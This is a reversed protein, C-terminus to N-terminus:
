FPRGLIASPAFRAKKMGHIWKPFTGASIVSNEDELMSLRIDIPTKRSSLRHVISSLKMTWRRDDMTTRPFLNREVQAIKRGPTSAGAAGHARRLHGYLAAYRVRGGRACKAQQSGPPGV